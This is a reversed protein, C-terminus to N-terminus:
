SFAAMLCEETLMTEVDSFSRAFGFEGAVQKARELNLDCTAVIRDRRFETRCVPSRRPMAPEPHEGCGVLALRIM